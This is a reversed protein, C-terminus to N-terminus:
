SGMVSIPLGNGIQEFGEFFHHDGLLRMFTKNSYFRVLCQLVEFVTLGTFDLSRFGRSEDRRYSKCLIVETFGAPEALTELLEKHSPDKIIEEITDGASFQWTPGLKTVDFSHHTM